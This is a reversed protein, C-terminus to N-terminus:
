MVDHDPSNVFRFYESVVFVLAPKELAQALVDFISSARDECPHKHVVVDVDEEFAAFVANRRDHSLQKGPVRLVEIPSMTAGAMKEFITVFRNKTIFVVVQKGKDAIDM